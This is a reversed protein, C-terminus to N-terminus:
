FFLSILLSVHMGNLGLSILNSRKSDLAMKLAIFCVSRLEHSPDRHMGHQRYLKDALDFALPLFLFFSFFEILLKPTLPLFFFFVKRGYAITAAQKLNQLQKGSCEKIINQLLDEM